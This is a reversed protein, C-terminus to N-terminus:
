REAGCREYGRGGKCDGRNCRSLRGPPPPPSPQWTVTERPPPPPIARTSPGQGFTEGFYSTHPEFPMPYAVM